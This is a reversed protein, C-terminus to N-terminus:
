IVESIDPRKALGPIINQLIKFEAELYQIDLIRVKFENEANEDRTGGIGSQSSSPSSSSSSSRHRRRRKRTTAAAAATLSSLGLSKDCTM